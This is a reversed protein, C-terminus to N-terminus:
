QAVPQPPRPEVLAPRTIAIDAAFFNLIRGNPLMAARTTEIGYVDLTPRLAFELDLRSAVPLVQDHIEQKQYGPVYADIRYTGPSLLLISFYGQADSVVSACPGIGAQLCTITATELARSTRADYVRGSITGKTTQAHLATLMALAVLVWAPRFM